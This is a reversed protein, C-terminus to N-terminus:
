DDGSNEQDHDNQDTDINGPPRSEGSGLAIQLLPKKIIVHTRGSLFFLGQGKDSM